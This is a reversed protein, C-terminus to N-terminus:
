RPTSQPTSNPPPIAATILSISPNTADLDALRQSYFDQMRDVLVIPTGGLVHRHITDVASELLVYAPVLDIAGTASSRPLVARDDAGSGVVVLDYANRTRVLSQIDHCQNVVSELGISLIPCGPSTHDVVDITYQPDKITALEQALDSQNGLLLIRVSPLAAPLTTASATALRAAAPPSSAHASGFLVPADSINLGALALRHGDINTALGVATCFLIATSAYAMVASRSSPLLQRTRIPREILHYSAVAIAATAGMRVIALAIGDLQLRQSTLLRFVPWHFVYLGYSMKGIWGMARTTMLARFPTPLIACIILVCSLLAVVQLGGAYLWSTTSDTTAVLLLFAVFAPISAVRALREIAAPRPQGIPFVFALIAGALLEFARTHTGYYALTHSNTMAVAILSLAAAGVVIARFTAVGRRAAVAALVPLIVYFQEEVALSWFHALPSPASLFIDDYSSGTAVFRWNSVNFVSAIIDGRTSGNAFSTVLLACSAVLVLCLMAAPWLRRVRRSWFGALDIRGSSCMERVLLQTILYGSITFFLSVGFLAGTAWPFSLHFLLVPIVGVARLGDLGAEYPLANKHENVQRRVENRGVM